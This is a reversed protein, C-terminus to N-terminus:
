DNKGLKVIFDNLVEMLEKPDDFAWRDTEMVFYFGDGGDQTKITLENFEENTCSDAKQVYEAKLNFMAPEDGTPLIATKITM